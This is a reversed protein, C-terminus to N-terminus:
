RTAEPTIRARGEVLRIANAAVGGPYLELDYVGTQPASLAATLTATATAIVVGVSSLTIAGSASTLDLLTTTSAYKARVVMRATYGTLNIPTGASDQYTLNLTFVSGQEITINYTDAM